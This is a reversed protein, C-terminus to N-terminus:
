EIEKLRKRLHALAKVLYKKAMPRSIGLRESIQDMSLGDRRCLLFTARAKPAMQLLASEIVAACQEATLELVPDPEPGPLLDCLADDLEVLNESRAAALRHQQAMHRAITFIYAEPLRITERGPVRLLRLFVEQILDPIDASNRVRVRLFQRLRGGQTVALEEILAQTDEPGLASGRFCRDLGTSRM